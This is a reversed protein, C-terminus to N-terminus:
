GIPQQFVLRTVMGQDNIFRINIDDRLKVCQNLPRRKFGISGMPANLRIGYETNADIKVPTPLILHTEKGSSLVFEHETSIPQSRPFITVQGVLDNPLSSKALYLETLFLDKNAIFFSSNPMSLHIYFDVSSNDVQRDCDLRRVLPEPYTLASMHAKKSLIKLVITELDTNTFFGPYMVIHRAFQEHSLEHFPIRHYSHNLQERLNAPIGPMKERICEAKAWAMLTGVIDLASCKSSVLQLIKDLLMHDCDLFDASKLIKTAEQKIKRECFEIVIKMNLLLAAAYGTCMNNITLSQMIPAECLKLGENVAYKKCLNAVQFIHESSLQVKSLYFFQLFEKFAGPSADKIVVDGKEPLSGYFMAHFVPSGVSLIIKHSSINKASMSFVFHVDATMPDLYLKQCNESALGNNVEFVIGSM